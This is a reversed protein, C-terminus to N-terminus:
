NAAVPVKKKAPAEDCIGRIDKVFSIASSVGVRTAIMAPLAPSYVHTVSTMKSSRNGDGCPELLNVGLLIESKGHEKDNNSETSTTSPLSVARSVVLYTGKDNLKRAHMFTTSEIKKSTVPPQTLNKVIKAIGTACQIQRIDQRGISMKNYVKVRSSDLLLDAMESPTINPLIAETRIMPLNAGYYQDADGKSCRGVHVRVDDEDISDSSTEKSNGKHAKWTVWETTHHGGNSSKNAATVHLGTAVLDEIVHSHDFENGRLRAWISKPVFPKSVAKLIAPDIGFEEATSMEVEVEIDDDDDDDQLLRRLSPMRRTRVSAVLRSPAKRSSSSSSRPQRSSGSSEDLPMDIGDIRIPTATEGRALWQSTDLNPHNVAMPSNNNFGGLRGFSVHSRRNSFLTTSSDASAGNTVVSIVAISFLVNVATIRGVAM